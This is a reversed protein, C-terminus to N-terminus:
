RSTSYLLYTDDTSLPFSKENM